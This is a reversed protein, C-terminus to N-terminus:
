FIIPASTCRCPDRLERLLKKGDRGTTFNAEDYGFWAYIPKYPGLEQGVDVSIIVPREQAWGNAWPLISALGAAWCLALFKM